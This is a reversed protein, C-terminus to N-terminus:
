KDITDYKSFEKSIYNRKHFMNIMAFYRPHSRWGSHTSGYGKYVIRVKPYTKFISSLYRSTGGSNQVCLRELIPLKHRIIPSFDHLAPIHAINLDVLEDCKTLPSIDSINNMFLELYHLHKLKAIPSIDRIRNDALILIRLNPLYKGIVSIDTIAQHGLDLAQLDTCYKLVQIDSSRMRRHSFDTILVSFAVDDTKLSWKGLYIRWVVKTKPFEKRLGALTENSLNCDSMDLYKLKHFLSLSKKFAKLDKIKYNSFDLKKATNSIRKNLIKIEWEFSINPYTKELYLQMDPTLKKNKIKVKQLGPFKSIKGLSYILDGNSEINSLDIETIAHDYNTGNIKVGLDPYIIKKPFLKDKFTICILTGLIALLILIILSKIVNKLINKKMNNEM